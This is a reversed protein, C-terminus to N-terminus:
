FEACPWTKELSLLQEKKSSCFLLHGAATDIHILAKTPQQTELSELTVIFREGRLKALM